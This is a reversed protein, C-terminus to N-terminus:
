IVYWQFSQYNNELSAFLAAPGYKKLGSKKTGTPTGIKNDDSFNESTAPM